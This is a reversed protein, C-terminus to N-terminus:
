ADCVEGVVHEVSLAQGAAWASTYAAEGLQERAHALISEYEQRDALPLPAGIASRLAAIAGYLRVMAKLDRRKYLTKAVGELCHAVGAKDGISWFCGLGQQYLALAQRYDNQCLMVDGLNLLLVAKKQEDGLEQWLRLNDELIRQAAAYDGKKYAVLGLNNSVCAIGTKDQGAQYLLYSEGLLADAEIYAGQDCAIMGLNNLVMATGQADGLERQLRLSEQHMARAAGYDCQLWAITGAEVLTRARLPAPLPGPQGLALELWRRGESLHSHVRWFRGLRNVMRFAQEAAGQDLAWQLATRLNEHDRELRDLWLEQEPGQLQAAAQETFALYYEM